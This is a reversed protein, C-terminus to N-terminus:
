AYPTNHNKAHLYINIQIINYIGNVHHMTFLSDYQRHNKYTINNYM